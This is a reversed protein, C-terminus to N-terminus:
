NKSIIFVASQAQDASNLQVALTPVSNAVGLPTVVGSLAPNLPCAPGSTLVQVDFVGTNGHQVMSGSFACGVATATFTGSDTISFASVTEQPLNVGATRMSGSYAGALTALSMPDRYLSQQSGTGYPKQRTATATFTGMSGSIRVNLATETFTRGFAGAPEQAGVRNQDDIFNAWAIADLSSTSNSASLTGRPHGALVNAGVFHLGYFQGNELLTYVGYFQGYNVDFIGASGLEATGPEPDTAAPGAGGGGCGTLIIMLLTALAQTKCLPM